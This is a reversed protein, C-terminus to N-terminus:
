FIFSYQIGLKILGNVKMTHVIYPTSSYEEQYHGYVKKLPFYYIADIDFDKLFTYGAGLTIFPIWARSESFNHGTGVDFFDDLGITGYYHSNSIYKNFFLGWDLGYFDDYVGMPGFRFNLLFNEPSGVAINLHFNFPIFGILNNSNHYSTVNSYLKIFEERIGLEFHIGNNSIFKSLETQPEASYKYLLINKTPLYVLQLINNGSDPLQIKTAAYLSDEDEKEFSLYKYYKIQDNSTFVLLYDNSDATEKKSIFYLSDNQSSFIVTYSIESSTFYNNSKLSGPVGTILKASNFHENERLLTNQNEQAFLSISLFAFVIFCKLSINQVLRLIAPLRYSFLINIRKV